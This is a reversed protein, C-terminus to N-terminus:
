LVIEELTVACEPNASSWFWNEPKSVYQKRVPNNHIYLLKQLFVKESEIMIPMNTPQWFHYEGKDDLFLKLVNPETAIVNKKLEKSTFKKFDRVFGAADPSTFLLHVHNLMFVFGYIKLGKEKACYTLSDALIQWRQYRDFLYYWKHVTFTIFYYSTNNQKSITASPM